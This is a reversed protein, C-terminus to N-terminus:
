LGYRVIKQITRGSPTRWEVFYLGMPQLLDPQWIWTNLGIQGEMSHQLVSQGLANYILIEIPQAKEL